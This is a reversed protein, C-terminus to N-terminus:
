KVESLLIVVSLVLQRGFGCLTSTCINSAPRSDLGFWWSSKFFPDTVKRQERFALPLCPPLLLLKLKKYVQGDGETEGERGNRERGGM